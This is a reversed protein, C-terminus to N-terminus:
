DVLTDGWLEATWACDVLFKVRLQVPTGPSCTSFTWGNGFAGASFFETLIGNQDVPASTMQNENGVFMGIVKTGKGPRASTDTAVIQDVRLFGPVASVDRTEGARGEVHLYVGRRFRERGTAGRSPRLLSAGALRTRWVLFGWAIWVRLIALLLGNLVVQARRCMWTLLSKM